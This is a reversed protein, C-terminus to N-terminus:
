EALEQLSKGISKATSKQMRFSVEMPGIRVRTKIIERGGDANAITESSIFLCVNRGGSQFNIERCEGEEDMAGSNKAQTM